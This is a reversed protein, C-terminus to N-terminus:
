DASLALRVCTSLADSFAMLWGSSLLGRPMEVCASAQEWWTLADYEGQDFSIPSGKHWHFIYFTLVGHVVHTATLSGGISLGVLLFFVQLALLCMLSAWFVELM